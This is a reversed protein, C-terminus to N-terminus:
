SAQPIAEPGDTPETTPAETPAAYLRPWLEWPKRGIAEAVAAAVARNKMRGGVVESVTSRGKGLQQALSVHTIGAKHMEETIRQPTWNRQRRVSCM